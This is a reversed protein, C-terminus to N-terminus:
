MFSLYIHLCRIINDVVLNTNKKEKKLCLFFTFNKWVIKDVDVILCRSIFNYIELYFDKQM